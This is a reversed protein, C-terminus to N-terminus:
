YFIIAIKMKIVNYLFSIEFINIHSNNRYNNYTRNDSKSNPKSTMKIKYNPEVIDFQINDLPM